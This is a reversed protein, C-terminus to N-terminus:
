HTACSVEWAALCIPRWGLGLSRPGLRAVEARPAPPPTTVIADPSPPPALADAQALLPQAKTIEVMSVIPIAVMTSVSSGVVSAGGPLLLAFWLTGAVIAAGRAPSATVMMESESRGGGGRVVLEDSRGRRGDGAGRRAGYNEREDKRFPYPMAVSGAFGQRSLQEERLNGLGIRAQRVFRGRMSHIWSRTM